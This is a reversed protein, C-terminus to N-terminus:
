QPRGTHVLILLPAVVKSPSLPVLAGPAASCCVGSLRCSPPLLARIRAWTPVARPGAGKAVRCRAQDCWGFEELSCENEEM